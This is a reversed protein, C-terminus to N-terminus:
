GSPVPRRALATKHPPPATAPCRVVGLEACARVAEARSHVGLKAYINQAHKHVTRTSMVLRRGIDPATAGEALLDLVTIERQSLLDGAAATVDLRKMASRHRAVATLVPAIAAAVERDRPGFDITTRGLVWAQSEAMGDVSAVPIAFQYNRGWDAKMLSHLESGWWRRESVVDTVAFTDPRRVSILHNVGPHIAAARWTPMRVFPVIRWLETPDIHVAVTTGNWEHTYFGASDARMVQRVRQLVLGAPDTGPPASLAAYAVEAVAASARGVRGVQEFPAGM